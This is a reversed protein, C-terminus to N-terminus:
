AADQDLFAPNEKLATALSAHRANITLIQQHDVKAEALLVNWRHLDQKRTEAAERRTHDAEKRGQSEFGIEAKRKTARLKLLENLSKYFARDNTTQYRLYLALQKQDDCGPLNHNFTTQQLLLARKSLWAAQAMKDILMNETLTSPQHEERLGNLLADFEQRQEWPLVNFAGTFGHRFNNMASVAKGEATRPGTSHQANAQNATSQAQTSM